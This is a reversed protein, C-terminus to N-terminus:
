GMRLNNSWTDSFMISLIRTPTSNKKSLWVCLDSSFDRNSINHSALQQLKHEDLSYFDDFHEAVWTKFASGPLSSGVSVWEEVTRKRYSLSKHLVEGLVLDASRTLCFLTVTSFLVWTRETLNGSVQLLLQLLLRKITLVVFVFCKWQIYSQCM